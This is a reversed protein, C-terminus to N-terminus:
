LRSMGRETLPRKTDDPWAESRNEALGHRILYIEYPGLM